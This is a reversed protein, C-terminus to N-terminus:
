EDSPRTSTVTWTQHLPRGRTHDLLLLQSARKWLILLANAYSFAGSRIHERTADDSGAREGGTPLFTLECSRFGPSYEVRVNNLFVEVVRNARRRPPPHDGDGENVRVRGELVISRGQALIDLCALSFVCGALSVEPMYHDLRHGSVVVALTAFQDAAYEQVWSPNSVAAPTQHLDLAVKHGYEHAIVFREATAVLQSLVPGEHERVNENSFARPRGEYFYAELTRYLRDVPESNRDLEAEIAEPSFDAQVDWAGGSSGVPHGAAVVSKAAQYIFEVLGSHLGVITYGSRQFVRAFSDVEALHVTGLLLKSWRQDQPTPRWGAAMEVSAAQYALLALYIPDEFPGPDVRRVIEEALAIREEEVQREFKWIGRRVVNPDGTPVFQKRWQLAALTRELMSEGGLLRMVGVPTPHQEQQYRLYARARLMEPSSANRPDVNRSPSM